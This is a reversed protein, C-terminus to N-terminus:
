KWDNAEFLDKVRCKPHLEVITNFQSFNLKCNVCNIKAAHALLPFCIPLVIVVGEIVAHTHM